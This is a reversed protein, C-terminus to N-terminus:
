DKKPEPQPEEQVDAGIIQIVIPLVFFTSVAEENKLAPKWNGSKYLIRKAEEGLGMNVPSENLIQVDCISGDNCVIFKTTVKGITTKDIEPLRFSQAIRRRFAHIGGPPEPMTNFTKEIKSENSELEQSFSFLCFFV